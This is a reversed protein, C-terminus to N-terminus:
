AVVANERATLSSSEATIADLLAPLAKAGKMELAGVAPYMEWCRAHASIRWAKGERRSPPPFGFAECPHSGGTCLASGRTEQYCFDCLGCEKSRSRGYQSVVNSRGAGCETPKRLEQGMVPGVCALMVTFTLAVTRSVHNRTRKLESDVRGSIPFGSLNANRSM